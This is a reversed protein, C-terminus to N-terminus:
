SCGVIARIRNASAILEAAQAATLKKGAQASVENIFARLKACVNGSAATASTSSTAALLLQPEPQLEALIAALKQQLSGGPGGSGLATMMNEGQEFAGLVTVAFSGSDELGGSDTATCSVMTTGIPFQGPSSPTCTANFTGDENDDATVTFFLTAGDATEANVVISSPLNLTPATNVTPTAFTVARTIAPTSRDIRSWGAILGADNIGNAFSSVPLTFPLAGLPIIEAGRWLYAEAPRGPVVAQGVLHGHNNIGFITAATAGAPWPVTTVSGASWVVPISQCSGSIVNFGSTLGAVHGLDNIEFPSASTGCAGVLRPLPTISGGADILVGGPGTIFGIILGANNIRRAFGPGIVEPVGDKWIVANNIGPPGFTTGVITGADNIGLARGGTAGDPLTLAAIVGNRWVVPVTDNFGSTTSWGVVDGSANLDTAQSNCDACLAGLDTPVGNTWLMAHVPPGVTNAWGAVQGSANISEGSTWTFHLSPLDTIVVQAAASTAVAISVVFTVVLSSPIARM